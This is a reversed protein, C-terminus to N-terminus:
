GWWWPRASGSRRRRRRGGRGRSAVGAVRGGSGVPPRARAVRGCDRRGVVIDPGEAPIAPRQLLLGQEQPHLQVRLGRCRRGQHRPHRRPRRPPDPQPHRAHSAPERHPTPWASAALTCGGPRLRRYLDQEGPAIAVRRDAETLTFLRHVHPPGRVVRFSSGAAGARVAAAIIVALGLCDMFSLRRLDFPGHRRGEDVAGTLTALPALVVIAAPVHRRNPHVRALARLAPVAAPPARLRCHARCRSPRQAVYTATALTLSGSPMVRITPSAVDARSTLEWRASHDLM